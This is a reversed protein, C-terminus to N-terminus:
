SFLGSKKITRMIQKQKTNKNLNEHLARKFNIESKYSASVNQQNNQDQQQQQQPQGFTKFANIFANFTNEEPKNKFEEWLKIIPDAQANGQKFEPIQKQIEEPLNNAMIWYTNKMNNLIQEIKPQVQKAYEEAKQQEPTPQAPQQQQQQQQQNQQQQNVQQQQQNQQQQAPQQQQQQNQDAQQANQQINNQVQAPNVDEEFLRKKRIKIM